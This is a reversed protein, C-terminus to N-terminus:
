HDCLKIFLPPAQPLHNLDIKFIRMFLLIIKHVLGLSFHIKFFSILHPQVDFIEPQWLNKPGYALGNLTNSFFNGLM